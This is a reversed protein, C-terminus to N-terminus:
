GVTNIFREAWQKWDGFGLPNPPNFRSFYPLNILTLAWEQWDDEKELTGILGGVNADLCIQDTWDALSMHIPQTLFTM